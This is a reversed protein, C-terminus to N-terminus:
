QRLMMGVVRERGHNCSCDGGRAGKSLPELSKSKSIKPSGHNQKGAMGLKFLFLLRRGEHLCGTFMTMKGGTKNSWHLPELIKETDFLDRVSTTAPKRLPFPRHTQM